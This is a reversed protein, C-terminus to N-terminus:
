TEFIQDRIYIVLHQKLQSVLMPTVMTQLM